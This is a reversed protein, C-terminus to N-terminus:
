VASDAKPLSRILKYLLHKNTTSVANAPSVLPHGDAFCDDIKVTLNVAPDHKGFPARFRGRQKWQLTLTQQGATLM